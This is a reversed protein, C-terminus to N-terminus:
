NLHYSVLERKTSLVLSDSWVYDMTKIEGINPAYWSEILNEFKVRPEGPSERYTGTTHSLYKNSLFSGAPVTTYTNTLECSYTIFFTDLEDTTDWMVGLLTDILYVEGSFSPYKALIKFTSGFTKYYGDPRNTGAASSNFSYVSDGNYFASQRIRLTDFYTTDISSNGGYQTVKYVWENGVALPMIVGNSSPGTSDESCGGLLLMAAILLLVYKAM